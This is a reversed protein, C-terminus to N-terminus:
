RMSSHPITVWKSCERITEILVVGSVFGSVLNDKINQASYTFYGSFGNATSLSLLRHNTNSFIAERVVQSPAVCHFDVEVSVSKGFRKESFDFFVVGRFTGTKM